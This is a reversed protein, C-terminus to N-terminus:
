DTAGSPASLAGAEILVKELKSKFREYAKQCEEETRGLKRAVHRWGAGEPCYGWKMMIYHKVMFARKGLPEDKIMDAADAVHLPCQPVRAEAQHTPIEELYVDGEKNSHSLDKSISPIMHDHSIMVRMSRRVANIAITTLYTRMSVKRAPDYKTVARGVLTLADSILEDDRQQLWRDKRINRVMKMVTIEMSAVVASAAAEPGLEKLTECYEEWLENVM